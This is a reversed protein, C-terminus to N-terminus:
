KVLKVFDYLMKLISVTIITWDIFGNFRSNELFYHACMGVSINRFFCIIVYIINYGVKGKIMECVTLWLTFIMLSLPLFFLDSYDIECGKQDLIYYAVSGALFLAGSLISLVYILRTNM